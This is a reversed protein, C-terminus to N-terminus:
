ISNQMEPVRYLASPPTTLIWRVNIDTRNLSLTWSGQMLSADIVGNEDSPGLIFEGLGDESTATVTFGSLLENSGQEVLTLNFQAAEITQWQTTAGPTNADVTLTGRFLQLPDDNTDDGDDIIFEDVYVLWEGEPLYEVITGNADTDLNFSEDGDIEEFYVTWNSMVGGSENRLEISTLWEPMFGMEVDFAESGIAVEVAGTSNSLLTNFNTTNEDRPDKADTEFFWNGVRLELEISGNDWRADDASINIIMSEEFANSPVMRFDVPLSTGNSMNGDHDIFTHITTMVYDPEAILM